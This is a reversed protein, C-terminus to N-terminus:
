LHNIILELQLENNANKTALGNLDTKSYKILSLVKISVFIIQKESESISPDYTLDGVKLNLLVSSFLGKLSNNCASFLCRILDNLPVEGGNAM